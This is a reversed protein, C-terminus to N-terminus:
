ASANRANAPSSKVGPSVEVITGDEQLYPLYESPFENKLIRRVICKLLPLWHNVRDIHLAEDVSLTVEGATDSLTHAIDNRLDTLEKDLLDNIKRGRAEAVFVSDLAMEDWKRRLPYFANLWPQFEAAEKPIREQPRTFKDGNAAAEKALRQRRNRVGEAIKFLCLFEYAASNSNTAERYLGAFARFETTMSGGAALAFPTDDFPNVISIQQNKTSQETIHIRWIHVPVDLHVAWNSLSPALARYAKHEADQFSAAEFEAELRDLFGRGNAHGLFVFSGDDTESYVKIKNAGPNDAPPKVAPPTIAIHSDGSINV